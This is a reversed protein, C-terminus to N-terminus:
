QQEVIDLKGPEDIGIHIYQEKQQQRKGNGFSSGFSGPLDFLVAAAGQGTRDGPGQDPIGRSAGGEL